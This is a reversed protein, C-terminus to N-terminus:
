VSSPAEVRHSSSHLTVWVPVPIADSRWSDTCTHLTARPGFSSDPLRGGLTGYKCSILWLVRIVWPRVSEKRGCLENFFSCRLQLLKREHQTALSTSCTESGKRADRM